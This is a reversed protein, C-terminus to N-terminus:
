AAGHLLFTDLEARVEMESDRTAAALEFEFNAIRKEKEAIISEIRDRFAKLEVPRDCHSLAIEFETDLSDLLVAGLDLLAAQALIVHSESPPSNFPDRDLEVNRLFRNPLYRIALHPRDPFRRAIHRDLKSQHKKRWAECRESSLTIHIDSGVISADIHRRTLEALVFKCDWSVHQPLHFNKSM